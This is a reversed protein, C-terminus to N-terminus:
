PEASIIEGTRSNITYDYSINNATFHINYVAIGDEVLVHLHPDIVATKDVGAHEYVIAYAEDELLAKDQSDCGMLLGLAIAALLIMSILKKKM